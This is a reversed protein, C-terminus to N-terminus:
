RPAPAGRQRYYVDIWPLVSSDGRSFMTLIRACFIWGAKLVREEWRAWNSTEADSLRTLVDGQAHVREFGHQALLSDLTGPSYGYLYPFSLLNNWAMAALLIGRVFRPWRRLQIM